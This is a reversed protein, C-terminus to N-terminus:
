MSVSDSYFCIITQYSVRHGNLIYNLYFYALHNGIHVLHCTICGGGGFFVGRKDVKMKKKFKPLFKKPSHIHSM